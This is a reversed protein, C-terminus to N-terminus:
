WRDNAPGPCDGMPQATALAPSFRGKDQQSPLLTDLLLPRVKRHPRCRDTLPPLSREEQGGGSAMRFPMTKSIKVGQVAITIGLYVWKKSTFYCVKMKLTLVAWSTLSRDGHCALFGIVKTVIVRLPRSKM